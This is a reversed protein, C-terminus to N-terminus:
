QDDDRSFLREQRSPDGRVFDAVARHYREVVDALELDMSRRSASRPRCRFGIGVAHRGAIPTSPGPLEYRVLAQGGRLSDRARRALRRTCRRPLAQDDARAITHASSILLVPDDLRRTPHHRHGPGRRRQPQVVHRASAGAPNQPEQLLDTLRVLQGLYGARLPSRGLMESAMRQTANRRKLEAVARGDEFGRRDAKLEGIQARRRVSGAPPSWRVPVHRGIPRTRQPRARLVRKRQIRSSSSPVVWDGPARDSRGPRQRSRTRAQVGRM